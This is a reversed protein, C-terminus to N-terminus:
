KLLTMKKVDNFEGVTIRYVYVGSSLNSGDFQIKYTGQSQEQNVLTAVQRGLIDFVKLDVWERKPVTYKINSIPNFPNPFNQELKFDLPLENQDELDTINLLNIAYELVEDRGEAIGERTIEVPYDPSIGVGHLQSWDHKSVKMGTWHVYHRSPLYYANVNGNTGATTKGVIDALDYFEVYSLLSEAYSICEAGTLIVKPIHSFNTGPEKDAWVRFQWYWNEGDPMFVEPYEMKFSKMTVDNLYDIYNWSPYGRADFILADAYYYDRAFIIFEEETIEDLNIVYSNAGLKYSSQPEPREVSFINVNSLTSIIRKEGTEYDEIELIFETNLLDRLYNRTTKLLLYGETASSEYKSLRIFRELADEGNVTIIRDGPKIDQGGDEMVYEIIMENNIKSIQLPAKYRTEEEIISFVTGHGDKISSIATRLINEFGSYAHCSYTSLLAKDWEINWDVDVVEFYPYFHQISNWLIMLSTYWVDKDYPDFETLPDTMENYQNAGIPRPYTLGTSDAFLCVPFQLTVLNNIEKLTFERPDSFLIPINGNESEEVMIESYYPSYGQARMSVSRLSDFGVGIHRWRCIFKDANPGGPTLMDPISSPAGGIPFLRMAPAIPEYLKEVRSCFEALDEIGKVDKILSLIFSDWDTKTAEISPYFYRIYGFVRNLISLNRLEFTSKYEGKQLVVESQNQQPTALVDNSTLLVIALSFFFFYM